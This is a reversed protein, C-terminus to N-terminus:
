DNQFSRNHGLYSSQLSLCTKAFKEFAYTTSFLYDDGLVVLGHRADHRFSARRELVHALGYTFQPGEPTLYCLTGTEFDDRVFFHPASNFLTPPSLNM